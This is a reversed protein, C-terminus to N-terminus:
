RTATVGPTSTPQSRHGRGLGFDLFAYAVGVAVEGPDLLEDVGVGGQEGGASGPVFGGDFGRGLHAVAGDEVEEDLAAGGDVEEGGGDQAVELADAELQDGVGGEGGGAADVVEGGEVEGGEAAVEFHGVEEQPAACADVVVGFGGGGKVSGDHAAGRLHDAPEEVVAGVGGEG